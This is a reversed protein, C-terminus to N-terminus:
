KESRPVRHLLLEDAGCFQCLKDVARSRPMQFVQLASLYRRYSAFQLSLCICPMDLLASRKSTTVAVTPCTEGSQHQRNNENDETPQSPRFARVASPQCRSPEPEGTRKTSRGTGCSCQFVPQRPTRDPDRRAAM